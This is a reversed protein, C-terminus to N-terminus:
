QTANTQLSKATVLPSKLLEVGKLPLVWNENGDHELKQHPHSRIKLAMTLPDDDGRQEISAKLLRSTDTAIGYDGFSLNVTPYPSLSKERTPVIIVPSFSVTLGGLMHVPIDNLLEEGNFGNYQWINKAKDPLTEAWGTTIKGIVESM